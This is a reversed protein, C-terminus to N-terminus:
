NTRIRNYHEEIPMCPDHWRPHVYMSRLGPSGDLFHGTRGLSGLSGHVPSRNGPKSNDFQKASTAPLDTKAMEAMTMMMMMMLMMSLM